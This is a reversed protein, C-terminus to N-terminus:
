FKGGSNRGMPFSQASNLSRDIQWRGERSETSELIYVRVAKHELFM